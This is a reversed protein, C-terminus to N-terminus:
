IVVHNFADASLLVAQETILIIPILAYCLASFLPMASEIRFLSSGPDLMFVVAGFGIVM